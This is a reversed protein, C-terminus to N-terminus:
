LKRQRGVYDGVEAALRVGRIDVERRREFPFSGDGGDEVGRV